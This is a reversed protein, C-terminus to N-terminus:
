AFRGHLFWRKEMDAEAPTGDGLHYYIWLRSGNELEIRFYDRRILPGSWWRTEIREPGWHQRVPEVRGRIRFRDPFGSGPGSDGDGIPTIPQPDPLLEIPRRGLDTTKPGQGFGRQVSPPPADIQEAAAASRQRATPGRGSRKVARNIRHATMPFEIIANEPLADNSARVGRVADEGLRGSLADILRAAETQGTWDDHSSAAFDPGFISPQRSSLAAHQTVGVTIRIVLSELRHGQLAGLMLTTLHSQDLTPAFLGTEFVLTPHQTLELQCRMRLVGRHLPHLSTTAQGILRSIRDAILDTADTPYELELTASHECQPAIAILPEDVEGLAEAIRGCLAPGLRTALGARPLRMLNGITGIGLRDLTAVIEGQLRLARCPLTELATETRGPPAIFFQHAPRGPSTARTSESVAHNALAWAAGLTDAIAIRGCLNQRNLIKAAAALLGLEGAREPDTTRQHPTSEVECPESFLHTVGQIESLIAEPDHRFRGAWKFRQLTEVATQPSLETQLEIALSQLARRDADRDYPEIVAGSMTALDTAQAIPMGLRVGVQAALPCLAAVIRGRQPDTHWLIVPQELHIPQELHVPQELRVPGATDVREAPGAAEGPRPATPALAPIRRRQIPWDPLWLCLLRKM